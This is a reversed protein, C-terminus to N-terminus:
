NYVHAKYKEGTSIEIKITYLQQHCIPKYTNHTYCSSSCELCIISVVAEKVAAEQLTHM